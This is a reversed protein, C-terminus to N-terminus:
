SPRVATLAPVSAALFALAKPPVAAPVVTALPAVSSRWFMATPASTKLRLPPVSLVLVPVLLRAPATVRPASEVMSTAPVCSVSEPPM